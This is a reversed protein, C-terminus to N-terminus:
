AANSVEETVSAVVISLNQACCNRPDGDIHVLRRRPLARRHLVELIFHDLRMVEEKVLQNFQYIKIYLNGDEGTEVRKREVLHEMFEDISYAQGSRDKLTTIYSNYNNM